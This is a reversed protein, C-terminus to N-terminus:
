FKHGAKRVAALSCTLRRDLHLEAVRQIGYIVATRHRKFAKAIQGPHVGRRNLVAFVVFRATAVADTRDPTFMRKHSINFCEAIETAVALAEAEVNIKTQTNM